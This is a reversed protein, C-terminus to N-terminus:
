VIIVFPFISYLSFIYVEAVTKDKVPSTTSAITPRTTTIDVHHVVIIFRSRFCIVFVTNGLNRDSVARSRRIFICEHIHCTAVEDTTVIYISISCVIVPTTYFVVATNWGDITLIIGEIRKISVTFCYFMDIIGFSNWTYLNFEVFGLCWDSLNSGM